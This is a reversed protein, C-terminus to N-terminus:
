RTGERLVKAPANRVMKQAAAWSEANAALKAEDRLLRLEQQRHRLSNIENNLAVRQYNAQYQMMVGGLYISLMLAACMAIAIPMAANIPVSRTGRIPRAIPSAVVAHDARARSPNYLPQVRSTMTAM